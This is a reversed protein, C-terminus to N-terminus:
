PRLRVESGRTVVYTHGGGTETCTVRFIVFDGDREFHVSDLEGQMVRRAGDPLERYLRGDAVYYRARVEAGSREGAEVLTIQSGGLEVAAARASRLSHSLTRLGGWAYLDAAAKAHTAALESQSHRFTGATTALTMMMGMSAAALGATTLGRRSKM